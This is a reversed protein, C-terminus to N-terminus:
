PNEEAAPGCTLDPRCMQDEPCDEDFSCSILGDIAVDLVTVSTVRLEVCGPALDVHDVTRRTLALSPFGSFGLELLRDVLAAPIAFEGDDATTCVVRAPTGGHNAINLEIHMQGLGDAAPAAWTFAAPMGPDLAVTDQDAVLPAVGQGRLSFPDIGDTGAGDLTIPDGEAFGPHPLDGRFSYFFVPARAEMEVAATLGDVTVPGLDVPEPQPVCGDPGCTEGVGCSPECFLSPPRLLACEGEALDVVSVELPVVGNFIQGQVATFGDELAIDFGGVREDDGCAESTWGEPEMAADPEPDVAADPDPEAADPEPDVAGDVMADVAADPTPDVTADAAGPDDDCGTLAVLLTICLIRNM